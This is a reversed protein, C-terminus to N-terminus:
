GVSRVAGREGLSNQARAAVRFIPHYRRIFALIPTHAKRAGIAWADLSWSMMHWGDRAYCCSSSVTLIESYGSAISLSPFSRNLHNVNSPQFVACQCGVLTPFALKCTARDDLRVQVSQPNISSLDTFNFSALLRKLAARLPLPSSSPSLNKLDLNPLTGSMCLTSQIEHRHNVQATPEDSSWRLSTSAEHVVWTNLLIRCGLPPYIKSHCSMPTYPAWTLWWHICQTFLLDSLLCM